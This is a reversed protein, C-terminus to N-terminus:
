TLGEFTVCASQSQSLLELESEIWMAGMEVESWDLSGSDIKNVGHQM